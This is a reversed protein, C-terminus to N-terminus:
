TPAASALRRYAAIADESTIEGRAAAQGINAYAKGDASWYPDDDPTATHPNQSTPSFSSIREFAQRTAEDIQGIDKGTLLIQWPRERTAESV